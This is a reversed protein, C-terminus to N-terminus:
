FGKMTEASVEWGGEMAAPLMDGPDEGVEEDILRNMKENMALVLDRDAGEGAALNHQEFPDAEIDYLELDNFGYIQEITTPRNHQKPSFYRSFNYRGDFVSRIAGRKNLDPIIGAEKLQDGKGGKRIFEYARVSFDGDFYAFMNFNFLMGERVDDLGAAEGKGVAPSIDKGRLHRTIAAAKEPAAASMAVFTPALDLHSTVTRCERDGPFDPHVIILPVNNQERYATAGKGHLRHAGDFDGHDSTLVIITDEALGSADLEALVTGINRDADRLCNVYNNHRRRWNEEHNPIDGVMAEHSMLFDRHAPPRGPEDIAQTLTGPPDFEWRKSYLPDVPERRMPAIGPQPRQPTAPDGTDFFM